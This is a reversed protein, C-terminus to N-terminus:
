SGLNLTSHSSDLRKNKSNDLIALSKNLLNGMKTEAEIAKYRQLFDKRIFSHLESVSRQALHKWGGLDNIVKPIKSDHFRPMSIMPSEHKLANFFSEWAQYEDSNEELKRNIAEALDRIQSAKPMWQSSLLHANFAQAVVSPSFDNLAMTFNQVEYAMANFGDSSVRNQNGTSPHAKYHAWLRNLCNVITESRQANIQETNM